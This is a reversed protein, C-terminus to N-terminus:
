KLMKKVMPVILGGQPIVIAYPDKGKRRISEIANDLAYQIGKVPKMFAKTAIEEPLETISWLEFRKHIVAFNAALHYGLKYHHSTEHLIQDCASTQSLLKIFEENGVGQECRAAFIM